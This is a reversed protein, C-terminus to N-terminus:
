LFIHIPFFLIFLFYNYVFDFIKSLSCCGFVFKTKPKGQLSNTPLCISPLFTFHQFPFFSILDTPLSLSLSLASRRTQGTLIWCLGNNSNSLSLSSFLTHIIIIIIYLLIQIKYKQIAAAAAAAAASAFPFLFFSSHSAM